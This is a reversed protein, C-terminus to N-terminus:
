YRANTERATGFGAFQRMTWLKGRYGTPHIGRTFPFAGPVEADVRDGTDLPTYLPEVERASNTFAVDRKAGRDYARRWAEVEARLRAIEDDRDRVTQELEHVSAM